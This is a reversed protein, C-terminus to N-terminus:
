SKRMQQPSTPPHFPSPNPRLPVGGHRILDNQRAIVSRISMLQIAHLFSAEIM